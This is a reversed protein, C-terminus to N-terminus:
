PSLGVTPILARGHRVFPVRVARAPLERGRVEVALATGADSPVRALGIARGLTPSFTGSTVEGEGGGPVLVRQHSRLVAREDLVLGILKRASGRARIEELASRGIFQREAPEFAVTWGLGSELPDTQANMDNGYLNM